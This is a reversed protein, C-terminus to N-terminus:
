EKVMLWDKELTTEEIKRWSDTALLDIMKEKKWHLSIEGENNEMIWLMNEM